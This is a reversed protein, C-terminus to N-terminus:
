SVPTEKRQEGDDKVPRLARRNRNMHTDYPTAVILFSSFPAPAIVSGVRAIRVM